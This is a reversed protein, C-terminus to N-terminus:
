PETCYQAVGRVQVFQYCCVIHLEACCLRRAEGQVSLAAVSTLLWCVNCFAQRVRNKHDAAPTCLHSATSASIMKHRAAPTEAANLTSAAQQSCAAGAPGHPVWLADPLGATLTMLPLSCWCCSCGSSRLMAVGAGIDHLRCAKLAHM